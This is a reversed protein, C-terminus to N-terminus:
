RSTLKLAQPCESPDSHFTAHLFTNATPQTCSRIPKWCTPLSTFIFQEKNSMLTHPHPCPARHHVRSMKFRLPLPEPKRIKVSPNATNLMLLHKWEKWCPLTKIQILHLSPSSYISPRYGNRPSKTNTFATLAIAPFRRPSYHIGKSPPLSISLNYSNIANKEKEEQRSERETEQTSTTTPNMNLIRNSLIATLGM